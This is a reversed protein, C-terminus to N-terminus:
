VIDAGKCLSCWIQEVGREDESINLFKLSKVDNRIYICVGDHISDRDRRYLSYRDITPISTDSFWNEAIGFVHPWESYHLYLELELINNNLSTANTYM